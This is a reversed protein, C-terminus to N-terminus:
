DVRRKKRNAAEEQSSRNMDALRSAMTRKPAGERIGEGETKGGDKGNKKEDDAVHKDGSKAPEKEGKKKEGDAVHKDGSKVPEKEGKKKEGNAVHKDGSKVPEKEGKKKEGNAVHKDGSKVPEKGGKKKAVLKALVREKAKVARELDEVERELDWIYGPWDDGDYGEYDGQLHCDQKSAETKGWGQIKGDRLVNQCEDDLHALVKEYHNIDEVIKYFAEMDRPDDNLIDNLEDWEDDFPFGPDDDDSDYPYKYACRISPM